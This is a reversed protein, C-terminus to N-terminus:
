RVPSALPDLVLRGGDVTLIQGTIFSAQGSALYVVANAAEEAEGIRGLPTVRLMEDRLDARERLASRLTETMVSGVAVGNVRIGYPALGAAMSRTMQDLAACGVSYGFLESVTRRGAISSLNVMAGTFGPEQEAQEIMRRAAAQALIFVSRVNDTHVGDFEDVTLDLFGGATAKRAANVVIDLRGFSDQTAALLNAISLREELRCAFHAVADDDGLGRITEQLGHDDGGALMVRAGEAVFRRATARGVGSEAGTIIAVKGNLTGAM